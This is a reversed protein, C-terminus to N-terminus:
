KAVISEVLVRNSAVSLPEVESANLKWNLQDSVVVVTIETAGSVSSRSVKASALLMAISFTFKVRLPPIEACIGNPM